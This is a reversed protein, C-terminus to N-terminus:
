TRSLWHPRGQLSLCSGRYKAVGMKHSVSLLHRSRSLAGVDKVDLVRLSGCTAVVESLAEMCRGAAKCESLNLVGLGGAWQSFAHRQMCRPSLLTELAERSIDTSSLHLELVLSANQERVPHVHV